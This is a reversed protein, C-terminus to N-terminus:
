KGRMLEEFELMVNSAIKKLEPNNIKGHKKHWYYFDDLLKNQPHAQKYELAQLMCELKDIDKVFIATKTKKEEFEKWLSVIEKRNKKGLLGAIQVIAKKEGAIKQKETTDPKIGIASGYEEIHDRSIDGTIAEPLDHLLGMKMAKESDIGFRKALLMAMLAVRWSHDAISESDPVKRDAWGTRKTSKLKNALELFEALLLKEEAM